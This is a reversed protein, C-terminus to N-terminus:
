KESAKIIRDKAMLEAAEATTVCQEKAIEFVKGMQDYIKEVAKKANESSYTGLEESINIVGGANAIFDPAYLIGKEKLMEGHREELLQNNASGCIARVKLKPITEDNLIGGLACPAFIDAEVEFIEELSVKKAGYKQVFDDLAKEDIDTAILDAGEEALFKAVGGGVNGIGQIAVTKGKLEPTGWVEEATRRMAQYVGYATYPSPNGSSEPRSTGTVHETIDRIIDMDDTNSGVDEATIYSGNLRDVFRAFAKMMEPTKERKDALIVSKGGGLNLGAASNKCTMGKALRMVDTLAEEESDYNWIRCGGLAPGLTTDHVAIIARLGTERDNCFLIQEFDETKMKELVMVKEKGKM